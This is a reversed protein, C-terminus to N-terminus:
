NSSEKPKGIKQGTDVSFLQYDSYSHRASFQKNGLHVSIDVSRPLWLSINHQVFKVQGYDLEQHESDLFLAPIPNMLDTELHIVQFTSADVWATGKLNVDYTGKPTVFASMSNPRDTRQQFDV